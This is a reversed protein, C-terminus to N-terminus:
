RGTAPPTGESASSPPPRPTLPGGYRFGGDGETRMSYVDPESVRPFREPRVVCGMSREPVDCVSTLRAAGSSEAARGNGMRVRPPSRVFFVEGFWQAVPAIRPADPGLPFSGLWEGDVWAWARSEWLLWGVALGKGTWRGLRMGMWLRRSWREFGCPAACPRGQIWRHVFLRPEADGHRRPAVEWGVEVIEHEARGWQLAVEALSHDPAAVAPSEISLRAGAGRMPRRDNWGAWAWCGQPACDPENPDHEPRPPLVPAAPSLAVLPVEGEACSSLGDLEPGGLVMFSSPPPSHRAAPRKECSLSAPLVLGAALAALIMGM